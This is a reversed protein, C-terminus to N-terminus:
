GYFTIRAYGDGHNGKMTGYYGNADPTATANPKKPNPMNPNDGAMGGGESIRSADYYGSGGGAGGNYYGTARGGYWGGGGSGTDTSVTNGQGRGQVVYTNGVMGGGTVGYDTTSSRKGDCYADGGPLLGGGGDGGGGDDGGGQGRTNGGGNDAGGGGGAVVLTGNPDWTGTTPVPNNTTSIHTMGGGNGCTGAIHTGGGNYAATKSSNLGQGGVFVYLTDGEELYIMGKTYGGYGARSGIDGQRATRTYTDGGSAGWVELMYLGNKPAVFIQESGKYTYDMSEGSPPATLTLTRIFNENDAYEGDHGIYTFVYDGPGTVEGNVDTGHEMKYKVSKNANTGPDGANVLIEETGDSYHLTITFENELNDGVRRYTNFNVTASLYIPIVEAKAGIQASVRDIRSASDVTSISKDAEEPSKFPKTQLEEVTWTTNDAVYFQATEGAKIAFSGDAGTYLGTKSAIIDGNADYVDYKVGAGIVTEKAKGSDDLKTAQRLIYDYLVAGDDEDEPIAKSINFKIMRNSNTITGVFNGDEDTDGSNAEWRGWSEDSEEFVEVLRMDGAAPAAPIDLVVRDSIFNLEPYLTEGEADELKTVVIKGNADSFLVEMGDLDHKEETAGAMGNYSCLIYPVDAAPAWKSGDYRLVQFTLKDGPNVKEQVGYMGKRIVSSPNIGNIENVISAVPLTKATGSQEPTQASIEIYGGKIAKGNTDKLRLDNVAYLKERDADSESVKYDFAAADPVKIVIQKFPQLTIPKGIEWDTGLTLTTTNTASNSDLTDIVTVKQGDMAATPWVAYTGDAQKVELTLTVSERDRAATQNQIKNLYANASDSGDSVYTKGMLFLGSTGNIFTETTGNEGITGVAGDVTDAPYLQGFDGDQIEIIQYDTGARAVDKFTVTQSDKIKFKGEADTKFKTGDPAKIVSGNETVTYERDAYNEGDVKIQMEFERTKGEALKEADGAVVMKSISIPKLLWDNTIEVSRSLSFESMTVDTDATMPMYETGTSTDPVGNEVLAATGDDAKVEGVKYVSGARLKEIRIQATAPAVVIGDDGVTGGIYYTPNVGVEPTGITYKSGEWGTPAPLRNGDAGIAFWTNGSIATYTGDDNLAEVKYAFAKDAYDEADQNTIKKSIILNRWVYRNTITELVANLETEGELEAEGVVKWDDETGETLESLRYESGIAGPFLAIIQNAAIKFTGDAETTGDDLKVPDQGNTRAADVVWYEQEAYPQYEGSADKVELKFTFLTDSLDAEEAMNVLKQAYVVSHFRNEFNVRQVASESNYSSDGKAEWYISPEEEIAYEATKSVNNFFATQGNKLNLKGDVDTAHVENADIVNGDADQLIYQKNAYPVTAGIDEMPKTEDPKGDAGNPYGMKPNHQTITFTFAEDARDEPVDGIVTKTIYLQKTSDLTVETADTTVTPNKVMDEGMKGYYTANNYAHTAVATPDKVIGVTKVGDAYESRGTDLAPAKMKVQFSISDLDKLVFETGDTKYTMDVAIARVTSKDAPCETTWGNAATLVDSPTKVNGTSINEADTAPDVTPTAADRNTNYYIKYAIGRNDMASTVIGDFTGYWYNGDFSIPETVSPTEKAVELKDFVVINSLQGSSLKVTLDYTYGDNISVTASKGYTGFVDSDARVTKVLQSQGAFAFQDDAMGKAYLVGEETIGDGDVDGNMAIKKDQADFGAPFKTGDDLYGSGIINREQENKEHTYAFVNRSSRAEKAKDWPYYSGFSVGFGEFWMNGGGAVPSYQSPDGNYKVTFRVMTRGTGNYNDIVETNVLSVNETEWANSYSRYNNNSLDTIIGVVVETEPDYNSGYPLLDSFVVTQTTPQQMNEIESLYNVVEKGYVSYGEIATLNWYQKVRSHAADNQVTGTKYAGASRVINSVSVAGEEFWPHYKQGSLNTGSYHYTGEAFTGYQAVGHTIDNVGGSTPDYLEESKALASPAVQLGDPGCGYMTYTEGEKKLSFVEGLNDITIQTVDSDEVSVTGGKTIIDHMVPSDPRMKVTVAINATCYYVTSEHEVAVRYIERDKLVEPDVPISIEKRKGKENVVFGSGDDAAIIEWQGDKSMGWVNVYGVIENEDPIATTDEYVDYNTDTLTVTVASFYYDKNDMMVAHNGNGLENNPAAYLIDDTTYMIYSTGPIRQGLKGAAAEKEEDTANKIPAYHTIDYGRLTAYVNFDFGSIEEESQKYVDLWGAKTGINDKRISHNGGLYYWEYDSYSWTDKGTKIVDKANDTNNDVPHLTVAVENKVITGQDIGDPHDADKKPYRVVAIITRNNNRNTSGKEFYFRTSGDANETPTGIYATDFGIVEGDHDPMEDFYIDYATTASVSCDIRWATYIYKNFNPEENIVKYRNYAALQNESYLGPGYSKGAITLKQKNMKTINANTSIEGTLDHLGSRPNDNLTVKPTLTWTDGNVLAMIDLNKYLVQFAANTGSAIDQYNFFVLEDTEEDIYYNFSIDPNNTVNDPTGFPVAIDAPTVPVGNRTTLLTRPMRIVLAGKAMFANTHFEVQYKLSFNESKTVHYSDPQEVYYVSVNWESDPVPAPAPDNGDGGDGGSGGDPDLDLPAPDGGPEDGGNPDPEDGGPAPDGGAPPAAPPVEGDGEAFASVPMISILM